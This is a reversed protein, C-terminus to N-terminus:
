CEAYVSRRCQQLSRCRANAGVLDAMTTRRVPQPQNNNWHWDYVATGGAKRIAAVADRQIHASHVLWGLGGGMVLVLIILARVTSPRLRRWWRLPPSPESSM